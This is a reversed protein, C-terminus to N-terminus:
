IMTRPSSHALCFSSAVILSVQKTLEQEASTRQALEEKVLKLQLLKEENNSKMVYQISENQLLLILMLRLHERKVEKSLKDIIGDREEIKLLM